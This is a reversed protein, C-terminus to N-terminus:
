SQRSRRAARRAARATRREERERDRREAAAFPDEDAPPVEAGDPFEEDEVGYERALEIRAQQRYRM